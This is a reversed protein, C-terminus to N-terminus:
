DSDSDLMHEMSSFDFDEDEDDDSYVFGNELLDEDDESDESSDEILNTNKESTNFHEKLFIRLQFTETSLESRTRDLVWELINLDEYEDVSMLNSFGTKTYLELDNSITLAKSTKRSVSQFIISRSASSAVIPVLARSRSKNYMTDYYDFVQRLIKRKALPLIQYEQGLSIDTGIAFKLSPPHRELNLAGLRCQQYNSQYSEPYPLMGLTNGNPVAMSRIVQAGFKCQRKFILLENNNRELKKIGLSTNPCFLIEQNKQPNQPYQSSTILLSECNKENGQFASSLRVTSLTISYEIM